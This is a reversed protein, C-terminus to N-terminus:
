RPSQASLIRACSEQEAQPQELIEHEVTTRVQMMQMQLQAMSSAANGIERPLNPPHAPHERWQHHIHNDLDTKNLIFLFSEWASLLSTSLGVIHASVTIIVYLTHAQGQDM